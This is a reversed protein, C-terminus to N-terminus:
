SYSVSKNTFPIIFSLYVPLLATDRILSKVFVMMVWILRCEVM